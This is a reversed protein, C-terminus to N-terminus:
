VGNFVEPLIIPPQCCNVWNDQTNEIKYLMPQIVLLQIWLKLYKGPPMGIASLKDKGAPVFLPMAADLQTAKRLETDFAHNNLTTRVASLSAKDKRSVYV